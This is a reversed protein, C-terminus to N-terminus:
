YVPRSQQMTHMRRGSGRQAPRRGCGLAADRKQGCRTQMRRCRRAGAQPRAHQSQCFASEAAQPTPTPTQMTKKSPSCSIVDRLVFYGPRPATQPALIFMHSWENEEDDGQKSPRGTVVVEVAGGRLKRTKVDDNSFQLDGGLLSTRFEALIDKIQEGGTGSVMAADRRMVFCMSEDKYFKHMTSPEKKLVKYYKTIFSRGVVDHTFKAEDAQEDSDTADASMFIGTIEADVEFDDARLTEGDVLERAGLLLKVELPSIAFCRVDNLCDDCAENTKSSQAWVRARLEAISLTRPFTEPGLLYSGSLSQVSVLAM